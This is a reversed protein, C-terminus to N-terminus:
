ARQHHMRSTLNLDVLNQFSANNRDYMILQLLGSIVINALNGNQLKENLNEPRTATLSCFINSYISVVAEVLLLERLFSTHALLYLLKQVLEEGLSILISWVFISFDIINNFLYASAKAVIVVIM